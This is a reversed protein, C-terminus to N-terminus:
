TATKDTLDARLLVVALVGLLLVGIPIPVGGFGGTWVFATAVAFLLTALGLLGGMLRVPDIPGAELRTEQLYYVGSLVLAALIVVAGGGWILTATELGQGSQLRITGLVSRLTPGDVDPGVGSSYQFEFLPFRVFLVWMENLSSYTVNWPLIAGIWASLVAFAGAHERQIWVM